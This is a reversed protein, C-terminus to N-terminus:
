TLGQLESRIRGFVGCYEFTDRIQSDNEDKFYNTKYLAVDQTDPVTYIGDLSEGKQFLANKDVLRSKVGNKVSMAKFWVDDARPALKLFRERDLVDAHLAGPPYLIGGVGTPFTLYSPEHSDTEYEWQRYPKLELGDFLIRHARHCHVTKPDELYAEHLRALWDKPYFADDDCTVIIDDPYAELTPILKQYSYLNDCFRVQLGRAMQRELARPLEIRDFSDHDLWLILRDPQVSQRMLSEITLHVKRLRSPITTLSVTLCPSRRKDRVGSERGLEYLMSFYQRLEERKRAVSDPNMQEVLAELREIKKLEPRMYRGVTHLLKKITDM